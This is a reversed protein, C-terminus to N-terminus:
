EEKRLRNLRMLHIVMLAIGLLVNLLGFPGVLILLVVGTGFLAGSSAPVLIDHLLDIM